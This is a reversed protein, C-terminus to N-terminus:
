RLFRDRFDALSTMCVRRRGFWKSRHRAVLDYARDRVRRPVFAFATLWPWPPPLLRLITLLAESRTRCRGGYVLVMTGDLREDSTCGGLLATGAPSQLAAFHFRAHRDRRLIFAVSSDCLNCWGDYLVIPGDDSPDASGAPEPAAAAPRAGGSVGGGEDKGM